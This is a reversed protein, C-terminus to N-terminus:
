FSEFRARSLGWIRRGAGEGEADGAEDEEECLALRASGKFEQRCGRWEYGGPERRACIGPKSATGSGSTEVGSSWRM